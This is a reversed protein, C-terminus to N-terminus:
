PWPMIDESLFFPVCGDFGPWHKLDLRSFNVQRCLQEFYTHLGQM